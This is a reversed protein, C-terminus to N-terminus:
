FSKNLSNLVEKISTDSANTAKFLAIKGNEDIIMYRSIWSLNIFHVFDGDKMGTPLNYHNGEIKFRDIGNKWSNKNTDVSLFLFVVEPFEKQLQKVKPLGKICDACWSAWVDILIIKGKYADLVEKLQYSNDELSYFTEKLASDSFETPKEFSCASIFLIFLLYIKKM